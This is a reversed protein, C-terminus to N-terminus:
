LGTNITVELSKISFEVLIFLIYLFILAIAEQWLIHRECEVFTMFLFAVTLMFFAATILLLFEVDTTIHIPCIIATIGLVLTSNVIVSGILDGLAMYRHDTMIARSEFTLEPLTTGISIVFLGILFPSVDLDEAILQGYQIVFHASIMLLIVSSVALILNHIFVKHTVGGLRERFRRKQSLIKLVYIFFVSVLIVGDMRSIARDLMLILPLGMMAFMYLTDRKVAKTEITIGRKLLTIIGIVMTLDLINAGIVNGLALAPKGEVASTIGVFFEPISTGIAVIIFGIVFEAMNLYSAIKTLSKVLLEAAIILVIFALIFWAIDEIFM